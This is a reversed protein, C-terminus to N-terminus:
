FDKYKKITTPIKFELIKSKKEEIPTQESGDIM